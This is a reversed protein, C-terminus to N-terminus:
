HTTPLPMRPISKSSMKTSLLLRAINKSAKMNKPMPWTSPKALVIISKRLVLFGRNTTLNM